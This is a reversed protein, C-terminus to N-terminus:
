DHSNDEDHDDYDDSVALAEAESFGNSYGINWTKWDDFGSQHPNETARGTKFVARGAVHGHDYPSATM